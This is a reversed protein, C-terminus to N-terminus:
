NVVFHNLRNIRGREEVENKGSGSRSRSGM